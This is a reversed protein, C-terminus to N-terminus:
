YENFASEVQCDVLADRLAEVLGVPSLLPSPLVRLGHTDCSCRGWTGPALGQDGEGPSVRMKSLDFKGIGRM